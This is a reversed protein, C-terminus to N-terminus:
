ELSEVKLKYLQRRKCEGEGQKMLDQIVSDIDQDLDVYLGSLLSTPDEPDDAGVALMVCAQGIMEPLMKGKMQRVMEVARRVGEHTEDVAGARDLIGTKDVNGPQLYYNYVGGSASDGGVEAEISQHLKLLGTKAVSYASTYPIDIAANRSGISIITGQKRRLMSPLVSWTLTAPATLNTTIVDTWEKITDQNCTALSGIAAIGANNVLITVSGGLQSEVEQLLDPIGDLNRLDYVIPVAAPQKTDDDASQSDNMNNITEAVAAIETKTRSICVVRAGESGFALAIARGIGRGAGTVLAVHGHLRGRRQGSMEDHQSPPDAM